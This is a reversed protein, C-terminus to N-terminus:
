PGEDDEPLLYKEPHHYNNVRSQGTDLGPPPLWETRGDARPRTTWGGDKDILRNHPGCALALEDIDTQGGDVWDAAAHHVECWYGPVTCGPKTCGRDRAHLVIRQGPTAFRKARGAYLPQEGHGDYVVLYHHAQSALRIVDRMPLLTGGATVAMGSASELEKLTTSVIITAPLGKHQGLQGSALVARGMAKLADHSRQGTSRMDNHRQELTPEGDVCPNEDDPNCMGPAALKALVADITASAEPDLWGTIRSMGDRGQTGIHVSRRRAQEKDSPMPGDQDLLMALRKAAKTLEEPCLGAAVRALDAEALQRTQYDVHAPLEHFFKEIIRVQEAGLRGDAQAAATATLLPALPEGTMATRPGLVRASNIRRRAEDRSVLLATCMVEALSSAGLTKPDERGLRAILLHDIVADRRRVRELRDQVAVLEPGTLADVSLATLAQHAAEVGEVAAFVAERSTVGGMTM